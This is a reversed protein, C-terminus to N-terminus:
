QWTNLMELVKEHHQTAHELRAEIAKLVASLRHIVVRQAAAIAREAKLQEELDQVPVAKSKSKSMSKSNFLSKSKSMSLNATFGSNRLFTNNAIGNCKLVNSFAVMYEDERTKELGDKELKAM